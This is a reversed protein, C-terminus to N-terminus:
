RTRYLMPLVRHRSLPSNAVQVERLGILTARQCTLVHQLLHLEVQFPTRLLFNNVLYQHTVEQLQLNRRIQVISGRCGSSIQDIRLSLTPPLSLSNLREGGGEGESM